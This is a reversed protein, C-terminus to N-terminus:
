YDFVEPQIDASVKAQPVSDWNYLRVHDFVILARSCLTQRGIYPGLAPCCAAKMEYRM